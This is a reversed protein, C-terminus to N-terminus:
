FTQNFRECDNTSEGNFEFGFSFDKVKSEVSSIITQFEERSKIYPIILEAWGFNHIKSFYLPSANFWNKKILRFFSSPVLYVKDLQPIEAMGADKYTYLIDNIFFHPDPNQPTVSFSICNLSM